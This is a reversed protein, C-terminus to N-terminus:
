LTTTTYRKEFKLCILLALTVINLGFTEFRAPMNQSYPHMHISSPHCYQFSHNNYYPQNDISPNIHEKTDSKNTM